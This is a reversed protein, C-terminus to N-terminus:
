EDAGDGEKGRLAALRMQNRKGIIRLTNEREMETMGDWNSIRSLTGDVGVVMPGLHGLKVSTSGNSMDLQHITTSESWPLALPETPSNNNSTSPTEDESQSPSYSTSSMTFPRCPASLVPRIFPRHTFLRLLSKMRAPLMSNLKRHTVIYLVSSISSDGHPKIDTKATTTHQHQSRPLVLDRFAIFLKEVVPFRRCHVHWTEAM